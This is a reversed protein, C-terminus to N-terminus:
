NCGETTVRVSSELAADREVVVGLRDGVLWGSPDICMNAARLGASTVTNAVSENNSYYTHIAGSVPSRIIALSNIKNTKSEDIRTDWGLQYEDIFSENNGTSIVAPKVASLADGNAAVQLFEYDGSSSLVKAMHDEDELALYLPRATFHVGDVTSVFRGVIMCVRSTGAQDLRADDIVIRSKDTNLTCAAHRETENQVNVAKDYQGQIFNSFSDAADRYRQAGITGGVSALVGAALVGTVALFLMVEIITYGGSPKSM